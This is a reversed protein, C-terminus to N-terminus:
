FSYNYTLTWNFPLGYNEYDNVVDKKDLINYFNLAVSNNKDASYQLTANMINRNPLAYYRNGSSTVEHYYSDNRDGLFLYNLGANFKNKQYGIGAVFQLRANDQVWEGSDNIEPNSYTVGLNYRWNDGVLKTYEVEIGTNRFDGKNIQIEAKTNTGIGLEEESAWGFKNSIDMNFVALKLSSSNTITKMGTEYTWGEQPKLGRSKKLNHADKDTTYFQSNMAPMIFSKGINTYWTLNENFKYLTQLQPLFVNQDTDFDNIAEGRLGLTVSFKPAFQHTYS